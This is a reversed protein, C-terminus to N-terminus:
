AAQLVKETMLDADSWELLKPVFEVMPNSVSFGGLMLASEVCEMSVGSGSVHLYPVVVLVHLTGSKEQVQQVSPTGVGSMQVGVGRLEAYMKALASELTDAQGLPVQIMVYNWRKPRILLLRKGDTLAFSVQVGGPYREWDFGAWSANMGCPCLASFKNNGNNVSFEETFQQFFFVLRAIEM